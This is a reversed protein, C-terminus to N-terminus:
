SNFFTIFGVSPVFHVHECGQSGKRGSTEGDRITGKPHAPQQTDKSARSLLSISTLSLKHPFRKAANFASRIPFFYSSSFVFSFLFMFVFLWHVLCATLHASFALTQPFFFQHGNNPFSALVFFSITNM